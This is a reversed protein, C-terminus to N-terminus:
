VGWLYQDPDEHPVAQRTITAIELAIADALAQASYCERAPIRLVEDEKLTVVREAVHFHWAGELVIMITELPRSQDHTANGKAIEIRIASLPKSTKSEIFGTNAASM